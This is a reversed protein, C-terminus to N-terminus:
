CRNGGIGVRARLGRRRQRLAVEGQPRGQAAVRMRGRVRFLGVAEVRREALNKLDSHEAETEEVVAVLRKGQEPLALVVAKMALRRRKKANDTSTDTLADLFDHVLKAQAVTANTEAVRQTGVAAWQSAEIEAEKLSTSIVFGALAISLPILVSLIIQIKDWPDKRREKPRSVDDEIKKLRNNLEAQADDAM